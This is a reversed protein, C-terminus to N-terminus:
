VRWACRVSGGDGSKWYISGCKVVRSLDVARKATVTLVIQNVLGGRNMHLDAYPYKSKHVRRQAVQM